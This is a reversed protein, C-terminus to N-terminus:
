ILSRPFVDQLQGTDAYVIAQDRGIRFYYAPRGDFSALRISSPAQDFGLTAYAQEASLKM